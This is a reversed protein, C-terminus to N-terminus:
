TVNVRLPRKYLHELIHRSRPGSDLSLSTVFPAVTGRAGGIEQRDGDVSGADAAAAAGRLNGADGARADVDREDGDGRVEARGDLVFVQGDESAIISRATTPSRRRRSRRPRAPWGRRTNRRAADERRVREARRQLPRHLRPRPLRAAHVHLRRRAAREVGRRRQQDAGDKLSIDGTATEKIAYVPSQPATRTPSTSWATASWRRRCRSTAAAPCSGSRRAPRSTTPASTACATSSSRRRATSTTSRRRAGRRCTPRAHRAVGRPRGERRVDRPVIGEARGGPRDVMGDHLIPSSGTEWQAEPVMYFGADLM